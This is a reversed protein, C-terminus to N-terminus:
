WFAEARKPEEDAAPAAAEPPLYSEPLLPPRSGGALVAEGCSRVAAEVAPREVPLTSPTVRGVLSFTTIQSQEVAQRHLFAAQLEALAADVRQASAQATENGADRLAPYNEAAFSAIVTDLDRLAARRGQLREPSADELSAQRARALQKEAKSVAEQPSGAAAAREAAVVAVKAQQVEDSAYRLRAEMAQIEQLLDARQGRLRELEDIASV